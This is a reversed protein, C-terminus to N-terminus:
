YTRTHAYAPNRDGLLRREAPVKGEPGHRPGIPGGLLAGMALIPCLLAGTGDSWVPPPLRGLPPLGDGEAPSRIMARSREHEAETGAAPKNSALASPVPRDAM